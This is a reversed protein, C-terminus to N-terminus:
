SVVVGVCVDIWGSGCVVGELTVALTVATRFASFYQRTSLYGGPVSAFGVFDAPFRCCRFLCCSGAAKLIAVLEESITSDTCLNSRWGQVNSVVTASALDLEM